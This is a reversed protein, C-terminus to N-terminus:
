ASPIASAVATSANFASNLDGNYDGSNDSIDTVDHFFKGSAQFNTASEDRDEEYLRTTENTSASGRLISYLTGIHTYGLQTFQTEANLGDIFASSIAQTEQQKFQGLREAIIGSIRRGLETAAKNKLDLVLSNYSSGAARAWQQEWLCIYTRTEERLDDLEADLLTRLDPYLSIARNWAAENRDSFTTRTTCLAAVTCDTLTAINARLLVRDPDSLEEITRATDETGNIGLDTSTTGGTLTGEFGGRKTASNRFMFESTDNFTIDTSSAGGLGM